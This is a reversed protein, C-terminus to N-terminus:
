APSYPVDASRGTAAAGAALAREPGSAGLGIRPRRIFADFVNLEGAQNLTHIGLLKGPQPPLIREVEQELYAQPSLHRVRNISVGTGYLPACIQAPRYLAGDREILRGAPRASRVDSKVPNGRHPRWPGFLHEAHYLHLEDDAAADEVGINVFMWWRDAARHLTADAFWAGRLLVKELRWDHPFDICRYLEVTRNGGTEPVMFLQGDHELLFPYSLHYDRELVRVPASRIGDRDVEIVAIHAKRAGFVFEEFFIYHRGGRELPFPDAWYRDKPPLLRIAHRLGDRWCDVGGFRYAIFWQDVGLLKQLGRRAIRLGLRSLSRVLEANDPFREHGVPRVRALPACGDLWADGSRHLERLARGAFEGTKRLVHGRTRAVSFASTRSWSQIVLREEGPGRRVILGSATVPIGASVERFGALAEDSEFEEGFCYRWIGFKAVSELARDDVEGLGFAVDLGLRALEARWGADVPRGREGAPRDLSPLHPFRAMLDVRQSPDPRLGFLRRDVRGFARWLRPPERRETGCEAVAVVEVFDLAAVKALAEVAWRPQLRSDAFLGVRLKRSGSEPRVAAACRTDGADPVARFSEPM